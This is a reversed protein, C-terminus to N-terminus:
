RLIYQAILSTRVRYTIVTCVKMKLSSGKFTKEKKLLVNNHM